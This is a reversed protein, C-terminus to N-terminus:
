YKAKGTQFDADFVEAVFWDIFDMESNCSDACELADDSGDDVYEHCQELIQYALECTIIQLYPPFSEWREFYIDLYEDVDCLLETPQHM